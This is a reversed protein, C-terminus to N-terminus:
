AGLLEAGRPWADQLDSWAMKPGAPSPFLSRGQSIGRLHFPAGRSWLALFCLELGQGAESDGHGSSSDGGGSGPRWGELEPARSVM